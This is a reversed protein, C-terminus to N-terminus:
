DHLCAQGAGGAGGGSGTGIELVRHHPEVKLAQTMRAVVYPQSITQGCPIPLAQNVYAHDAFPTELFAERPVKGIVDLVRDESIGQQRLSQILKLRRRDETM